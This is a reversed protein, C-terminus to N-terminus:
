SRTSRPARSALWLRLFEFAYGGVLTGWILGINPEFLWLGMESGISLCALVGFIWIAVTLLAGGGVASYIPRRSAYIQVLPSNSARPLLCTKYYKHM